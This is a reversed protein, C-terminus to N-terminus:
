WRRVTFRPDSPGVLGDRAPWIQMYHCEESDFWFQFEIAVEGPQLAPDDQAATLDIDRDNLHVSRGDAPFACEVWGTGMGMGRWRFSVEQPFPSIYFHLQFRFVQKADFLTGNQYPQFNPANPRKWWEVKTQKAETNFYADRGVHGVAIATGSHDASAEATARGRLRQWAEALLRRITGM